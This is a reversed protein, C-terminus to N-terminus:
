ERELYFRLKLGHECQVRKTDAFGKVHYEGAIAHTINDSQLNREFCPGSLQLNHRIAVSSPVSTPRTTKTTVLIGDKENKRRTRPQGCRFRETISTSLLILQSFPGTVQFQTPRYSHFM